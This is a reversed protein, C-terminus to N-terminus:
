EGFFRYPFPLLDGIPAKVPQGEVSLIVWIDPAYDLLMQRCTGCPHLIPYPPEWGAVAVVIDYNREGNSIAAGLAVHEACPGSGPAEINVGPYIQGSAARIAAGVGHRDESYNRVIVDRAAALVEQDAATLEVLQM